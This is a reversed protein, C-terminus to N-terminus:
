ECHFVAMSSVTGDPVTKLEFRQEGALNFGRIVPGNAQGVMIEPQEDDIVNGAAVVVGHQDDFAALTTLLTGDSEYIEVQRGKSAMAAVVDAKGDDNFDASAVNVGNAKGTRSQFVSFHNLAHSTSNYVAVQDEKLLRGAIMDAKDDGDIDGVAPAIRTNKDFLAISGQATGDAAYVFVSDRNAARSAVIIEPQNDGNIDGAALSIGSAQVSFSRIMTGDLEYLTVTHGGQQAAVAIEDEDDGDFDAVAISVEHSPLTLNVQKVEFPEESLDASFLQGKNNAQDHVAYLLCQTPKSEVIDITKPQGEGVTFEVPNFHYGEFAAVLTYTAGVVLHNLQYYGSEDTTSTHSGATLTVGSLPEGATDYIYGKIESFLSPDIELLWYPYHSSESTIMESLLIVDDLVVTRIYEEGKELRVGDGENLFFWGEDNSTTSLSIEGGNLKVTAGSISNDLYDGVYGSLVMGRKDVIMSNSFYPTKNDIYDPVSLFTRGGKALIMPAGEELQDWDVIRYTLQLRNTERMLKGNVEGMVLQGVYLLIPRNLWISDLYYYKLMDVELKLVLAENYRLSVGGEVPPLDFSLLEASIVAEIPLKPLSYSAMAGQGVGLLLLGVSLGILQRYGISIRNFLNNMM